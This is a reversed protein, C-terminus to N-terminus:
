LGNLSGNYKYFACSEFNILIEGLIHFICYVIIENHHKNHHYHHKNHHYHHQKAAEPNAAPNQRRKNKDM